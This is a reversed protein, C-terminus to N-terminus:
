ADVFIAGALFSGWRFRRNSRPNQLRRTGKWEGASRLSKTGEHFPRWSGLRELRATVDNMRKRRCRIELEHGGYAVVIRCDALFKQCHGGRTDHDERVRAVHGREVQGDFQSCAVGRM